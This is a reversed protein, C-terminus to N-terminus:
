IMSVDTELFIKTHKDIGLILSHWVRTWAKTNYKLFLFDTIWDIANNLRNVFHLKSCTFTFNIAAKNSIRAIESILRIKTEAPKWTEFLATQKWHIYM